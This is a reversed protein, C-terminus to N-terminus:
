GRQPFCRPPCAPFTPALQPVSRTNDLRRGCILFRFKHKPERGLIAHLNARDPTALPPLPTGTLHQVPAGRAPQGENDEDDDDDLGEIDESKDASEEKYDPTM